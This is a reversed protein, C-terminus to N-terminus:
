AARELQAPAVREERAVKLARKGLDVILRGKTIPAVIKMALPSNLLATLAGAFARPDKLVEARVLKKGVRYTVRLKELSATAADFPSRAYQVPRAKRRGVVANYCATFSVKGSDLADLVGEFKTGEVTLARDNRVRRALVVYRAANGKTVNRGKRGGQWGESIAQAIEQRTAGADEFENVARVAEAYLPGDKATSTFVARVSKVLKTRARHKEAATAEREAPETPLTPASEGNSKV